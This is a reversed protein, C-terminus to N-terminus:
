LFIGYFTVASWGLTAEKGGVALEVWVPWGFVLSGTQGDHLQVHSSTMGNQGEQSVVVLYKVKDGEM